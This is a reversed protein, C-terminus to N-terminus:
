IQKYEKLVTETHEPHIGMNNTDCFFEDVSMKDFWMWWEM